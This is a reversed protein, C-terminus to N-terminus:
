LCSAVSPRQSSISIGQHRVHYTGLFRRNKCSGCQTVDWFVVNKLVFMINMQNQPMVVVPSKEGTFLKMLWIACEDIVNMAM